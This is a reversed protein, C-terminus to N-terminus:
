DGICIQFRNLAFWAVKFDFHAFAGAGDIRIQTGTAASAHVRARYGLLDTCLQLDGNLLLYLPVSVHCRCNFDIPGFDVANDFFVLFIV